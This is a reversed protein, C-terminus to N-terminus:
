GGPDFMAATIFVAPLLALWVVPEVIAYVALTLCVVVMGTRLPSPAAM